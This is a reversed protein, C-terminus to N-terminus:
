YSKLLYYNSFIFLIKRFMIEKEVVLSCKLDAFVQVVRYYPISNKQCIYIVFFGKRSQILFIQTLKGACCFSQRVQAVQIPVCRKRTTPM